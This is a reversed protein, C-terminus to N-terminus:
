CRNAAAAEAAATAAEAAAAAAATAAAAESRAGGRGHRDGSTAEGVRINTTDASSTVAASHLCLGGAVM